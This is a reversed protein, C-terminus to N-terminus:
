KVKNTCALIASKIEEKGLTTEVIVEQVRNGARALLKYRNEFMSAMYVQFAPALGPSLFFRGKSVAQIGEFQELEKILSEVDAWEKDAEAAALEGGMSDHNGVVAEMAEIMPDPVIDKLSLFIREAAFDIQHVKAEVIEGVKFYSAPDLTADWSVETQHILAPVGEVEVFIGFYTIKKICCKVVDGISLKAMLKRKKEVLEEKEKPKVSLILRRSKREALLVNVKFKQGVFSSLFKLKEQDYIKLLDEIKNSSSIEENANHEFNVDLSSVPASAKTAIESSGIISLNQKYLSPDLGRRRLWSEVALFKHKAALNRYPLFGIISGFSVVFGRTSSSIVEVEERGGTKVLNEARKWDIDEREELPPPTLLKELGITSDYSETNALNKENKTVESTRKESQKLREPKHLVAEAFKSSDPITKSAETVAVKMGSGLDNQQFPRLKSGTYDELIGQESDDDLIQPKEELALNNLDPSVKSTHIMESSLNETSSSETYDKPKEEESDNDLMQPKGVLEFNNQKTSELINKVSNQEVINSVEADANGSSVQKNEENFSLLEPKRILTIDSYKDQVNVKGKGKDISMSYRNKSTSAKSTGTDDESYVSPKRLTVDPARVKTSNVVRVAPLSPRKLGSVNPKNDVEFKVGKKPMPRVLNLGDLSRSSQIQRKKPVDFTVESIDYTMGKGGKKYFMKEIELDSIDPDYKKGMIKALTLKPDEGIMKGFQLEMQDWENLSPEDKSAYLVFRKSKFPLSLTSLRRPHSFIPSSFKFDSTNISTTPPLPLGKM